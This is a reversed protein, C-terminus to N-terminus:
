RPGTEAHNEVTYLSKPEFVKFLSINRNNSWDNEESFHVNQRNSSKTQSTIYEHCLYKDNCTAYKVDSLLLLQGLLGINVRKTGGKVKYQTCVIRAHSVRDGDLKHWTRRHTGSSEVLHDPIRM